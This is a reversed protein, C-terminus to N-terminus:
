GVPWHPVRSRPPEAELHEVHGGRITGRWAGGEQGLGEIFEKFHGLEARVVRGPFGSAHVLRDAVGRPTVGIRVLVATRGSATPRFSVEGRHGARRGLGRWTVLSDPVQDVIEAEFEHRVPGFGIVWRTLNPRVQEVSRVASMFRPFSKFQTWQNYATSVPVAVEISEEVTNM